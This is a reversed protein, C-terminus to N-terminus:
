QSSELRKNAEEAVLTGASDIIASKLLAVAEDRREDLTGLIEAAKFEAAGNLVMGGAPYLCPVSLYAELAELNRKATKLLEARYFSAYACVDVPLNDTTLDKFATERAAVTTSGPLLLAKGLSVFPDIGQAPTADSIEKGIEGCKASNGNVAYAVLAARAADLWFNGSIKASDRQSVIIPELLKLADGPKGMLLLAIAPDLGAPKDGFIHDVTAMPFVHGPNYGDTAVNLVFKDGQLVVASLPVSRGNQFVLRSPEAAGASSLPLIVAVCALLASRFPHSSPMM